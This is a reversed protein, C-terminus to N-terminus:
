KVKWHGGYNYASNPAEIACGAFLLIETYNLHNLEYSTSTEPGFDFATTLKCVSKYLFDRIFVKILAISIENTEYCCNTICVYNVFVTM